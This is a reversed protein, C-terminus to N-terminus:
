EEDLNIEPLKEEAFSKDKKTASAVESAKKLLGDLGQRALRENLQEPTDKVGDLDSFDDFEEDDEKQIKIEYDLKGNLRALEDSIATCFVETYGRRACNKALFESM